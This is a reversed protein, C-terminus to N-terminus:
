LRLMMEEHDVYTGDTLKYGQLILGTTYFGLSTYLTRAGTQTVAVTLILLELGDMHRANEIIEAMLQRAIGQGRAEPKAYVSWIWGRHREKFADERKFAVTALLVGNDFYGLVYKEPFVSSPEMWELFKDEPMEAVEEPTQGFAEPHDRCMEVRLKRFATSDENTLKRLDM